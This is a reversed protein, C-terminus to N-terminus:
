KKQLIQQPGNCKLANSKIPFIVAGLNLGKFSISIYVDSTKVREHRAGLRHGIPM